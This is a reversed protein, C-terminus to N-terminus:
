RKKEMAANLGIGNRQQALGLSLVINVCVSSKNM